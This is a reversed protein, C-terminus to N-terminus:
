GSGWDVKYRAAAAPFRTRPCLSHISGTNFYTEYAIGGANDRFFRYMNDIYM